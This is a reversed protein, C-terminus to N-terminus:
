LVDPDSWLLRSRIALRDKLGTGLPWVLCIKPSGYCVSMGPKGKRCGNGFTLLPGGDIPFKFEEAGSARSGSSQVLNAGISVEQPNGM